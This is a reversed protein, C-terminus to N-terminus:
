VGGCDKRHHYTAHICERGNEAVYECGDALQSDLQDHLESDTQDRCDSISDFAQDFAEPECERANVCALKALRHIFADETAYCATSALFALAPIRRRATTM